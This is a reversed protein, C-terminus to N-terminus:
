AHLAIVSFSALAVGLLSVATAKHAAGSAAAVMDGTEPRRMGVASLAVVTLARSVGFTCLLVLSGALSAQLVAAVALVYLGAYPSYTVFGTGLWFGYGFMRRSEGAVWGADYNVQSERQPLRFALAGIERLGLATAAMLLIAATLQTQADGIPSLGLHLVVGLVGLATGVVASGSVSGVIYPVVSRWAAARQYAVNLSFIMNVGCATSAASIGAVVALILLAPLM